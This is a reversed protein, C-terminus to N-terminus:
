SRAKGHQDTRQGPINRRGAFINMLAATSRVLMIPYGREDRDEKDGRTRPRRRGQLLRGSRFYSGSHRGGTSASYEEIKGPYDLTGRAGTAVNM